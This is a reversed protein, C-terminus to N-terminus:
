GARGQKGDRLLGVVFEDVVEGAEPWERQPKTTRLRVYGHWGSWLCAVLLDRDRSTGYGAAQCDQVARELVSQAAAAPHGDPRPGEEPVPQEVDTIL